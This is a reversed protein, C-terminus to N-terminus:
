SEGEVTRDELEVQLGEEIGDKYISILLFMYPCFPTPSQPCLSHSTHSYPSQLSYPIMFTLISPSQLLICAKTQLLCSVLGCLNQELRSGTM